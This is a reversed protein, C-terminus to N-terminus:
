TFLKWGESTKKLAGCQELNSAVNSFTPEEGVDYLIQLEDLTKLSKDVAAQFASEEEATCTTHPWLKVAAAHLWLEFAVAQNEVFFAVNPISPYEDSGGVEEIFEEWNDMAWQLILWGFEDTRQGFKVLGEHDDSSLKKQWGFRSYMKSQWLSVVSQRKTKKKKKVNKGASVLAQPGAQPSVEKKKQAHNEEKKGKNEPKTKKNENESIQHLETEENPKAPTLGGSSSSDENGDSGDFGHIGHIGQNGHNFHFAESVPEVTCQSQSLEEGSESFRSLDFRYRAAKGSPHHAKAVLKIYGDQKAQRCYYSVLQPSIPKSIVETLIESLPVVPLLIDRSPTLRQLYEGALRTTDHSPEARLGPGSDDVPLGSNTSRAADREGEACGDNRGNSRHDVVASHAM